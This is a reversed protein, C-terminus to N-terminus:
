NIWSKSDIEHETKSFCNELNKKLLTRSFQIVEFVQAAGGFSEKAYVVWKKLYLKRKTEYFKAGSNWMIEKLPLRLKGARFLAVLHHLFKQKFKSSLARVSFMFHKKGKPRYSKFYIRLEELVKEWL